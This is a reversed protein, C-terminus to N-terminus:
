FYRRGNAYVKDLNNDWVEVDKPTTGDFCENCSWVRDAINCADERNASKYEEKYPKGYKRLVMVRYETVPDKHWMGGVYENSM